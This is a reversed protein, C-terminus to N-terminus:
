TFGSRRVEGGCDGVYFWRLRRMAAARCVVHVGGTSGLYATGSTETKSNANFILVKLPSDM